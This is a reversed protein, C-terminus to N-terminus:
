TLRPKQSVQATTVSTGQSAVIFVSDGRFGANASM